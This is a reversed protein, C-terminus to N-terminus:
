KKGNKSKKPRSRVVEKLVVPQEVVEEINEEVKEEVVDEITVHHLPKSNDKFIVPQMIKM